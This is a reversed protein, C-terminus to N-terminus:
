KGVKAKLEEFWNLVVVYTTAPVVKARIFFFSRDDKSVAYDRNRVDKLYSHASFLM